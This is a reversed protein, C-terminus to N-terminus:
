EIYKSQLFCNEVKQPAVFVGTSRQIAEGLYVVMTEHSLKFINAKRDIIKLSGNALVEVVDGTLFWGEEDFAEATSESDKYYGSFISSGKLCLEGKPNGGDPHKYYYGM